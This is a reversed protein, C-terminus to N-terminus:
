GVSCSIRGEPESTLRDALGGKATTSETRVGTGRVMQGKMTLQVRELRASPPESYGSAHLGEASRFSWSAVGLASM